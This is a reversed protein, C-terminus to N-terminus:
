KLGSDLWQPKSSIASRIREDYLAITYQCVSPSMADVLEYIDKRRMELNAKALNDWHCVRNRLSAIRTIRAGIYARPSLGGRKSKSPIHPFAGSTVDKWLLACRADRRRLAEWSIYRSKEPPAERPIGSPNGIMNKWTGFSTHAILDDHTISGDKRSINRGTRKKWEALHVFPRLASAADPLFDDTWSGEYGKLRWWSCIEKDMANRLVIEAIGIAPLFACRVGMEWRFAVLGTETKGCNNSLALIKQRGLLEIDDDTLLLQNPM